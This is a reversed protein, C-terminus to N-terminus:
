RLLVQVIAQALPGIIQDHPPALLGSFTDANTFRTLENIYFRGDPSIGCDYRAGIQVTEFKDSKLQRIRSDTDLVFRLLEAHKQKRTSADSSYWNFDSYDNTDLLRLAMPKSALNADDKTRFACVVRGSCVWVRFEGTRRFTPVYEQHFYLFKRTRIDRRQGRKVRKATQSPEPAKCLLRDRKAMTVVKVDRGACSHSRKLVMQSNQQHTLLCDGMGFCTTPRWANSEQAVDDLTRIDGVKQQCWSWESKKPYVAVGAKVAELYDTARYLDEMGEDCSTDSIFLLVKDYNSTLVKRVFSGEDSEWHYFEVTASSWHAVFLMMLISQHVYVTDDGEDDDYDVFCPGLNTKLNGVLDKTIAQFPSQAEQFIELDKFCVPIHLYPNKKITEPGASIGIWIIHRKAEMSPTHPHSPLLSRCVQEQGFRGVPGFTEHILECREQFSDHIDEHGNKGRHDSIVMRLSENENPGNSRSATKSKECTGVLAKPRPAVTRSASRTLNRSWQGQFAQDMDRGGTQVVETIGGSATKIKPTEQTTLVDSGASHNSLPAGNVARLVELQAVFSQLQPNVPPQWDKRCALQRCLADRQSNTMGSVITQTLAIAVVLAGTPGCTQLVRRFFAYFKRRKQLNPSCNQYPDVVASQSEQLTGLAHLVNMQKRASLLQCSTLNEAADNILLWAEDAALPM